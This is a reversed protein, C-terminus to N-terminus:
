QMFSLYLQKQRQLISRCIKVCIFAITQTLTLRASNLFSLKKVCSRKGTRESNYCFAKISNLKRAIALTQTKINQTLACSASHSSKKTDKLISRFLGSDNFFIGVYILLTDLFFNYIILTNRFCISQANGLVRFIRNMGSILM